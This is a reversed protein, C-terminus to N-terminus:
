KAILNYTNCTLCVIMIIVGYIALALSMWRLAALRKSDFNLRNDHELDENDKYLQQHYPNEPSSIKYYFLGPLIFSISTSGTAGVYALVTDLSNVCMAVLYSLVVIVTTIIAFKLDGIVQVPAGHADLQGGGASQSLLPAARNPSGRREQRRTWFAPRYKLVAVCSARCPHAQLPYSFMVLIVIALKGITSSVDPEYQGVINGAVSNGFSLYGTIAVIIYIACASGISSVIVSSIIKPRNDKIENVISFMNQHCTYAFVIVPLSSLASLASEPKIARIPGRNAQTDGAAYHYIVLVVLYGISVLAVVSTYKLSDLRRLFSM